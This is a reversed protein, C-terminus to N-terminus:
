PERNGLLKKAEESDAETVSPSRAVRKLYSLTRTRQKGAQLYLKAINLLSSEDGLAVARHFWRIARDTDGRDRYVFDAPSPQRKRSM